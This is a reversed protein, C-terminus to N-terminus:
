GVFGPYRKLFEYCGICFELGDYVQGRLSRVSPTVKSLKFGVKWALGIMALNGSLTQTYIMDIDHKAFLYGIYLSLAAEGYGKRRQADDPFDIGVVLKTREESFYASVWGIHEGQENDVAFRYYIDRPKGVSERLSQVFAESDDDDDSGDWAVDWSESDPEDLLWRQYDTIDRQEIPRLTIKDNQLAM